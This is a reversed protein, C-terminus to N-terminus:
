GDINVKRLQEALAALETDDARKSDHSSLYGQYEDFYTNIASQKAEWAEGPITGIMPFLKIHAHDVGMGEVIIGTRAVGLGKDLIRTVSKAADLLARYDEDPLLPVYSPLHEKSIVVSFGKINPFISLFAMHTESEWIKHCPVEGEVIKCFICDAMIVVVTLLM